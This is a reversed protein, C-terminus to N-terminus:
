NNFKLFEILEKFNEENQKSSPPAYVCNELLNIAEPVSVQQTLKGIHIKQEDVISIDNLSLPSKIDFFLAKQNTQDICYVKYFDTIEGILVVKNVPFYEKYFKWNESRLLSYRADFDLDNNQIGSQKKFEKVLKIFTSHAGRLRTQFDLYSIIEKESKDIPFKLDNQIDKALVGLESDDSLKSKIFEILTM